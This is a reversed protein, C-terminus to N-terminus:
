ETRLSFRVVIQRRERQTHSFLLLLPRSFLSSSPSFLFSPANQEMTEESFFFLRLGGGRQLPPIRIHDTAVFFFFVPVVVVRFFPFLFPSRFIERDEREVRRTHNRHTPPFTAGYVFVADPRRPSWGKTLPYVRDLSTPLIASYRRCIRHSWLGNAHTDPAKERDDREREREGCRRRRGIIVIVVSPLLSFLPSSPSGSLFFFFVWRRRRM